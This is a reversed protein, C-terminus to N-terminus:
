GFQYSDLHGGFVECNHAPDVGVTRAEQGTRDNQVSLVPSPLPIGPHRRGLVGSRTRSSPPSRKGLLLNDDCLNGNNAGPAEYKGALQDSVEQLLVGSGVCLEVQNIDVLAPEM